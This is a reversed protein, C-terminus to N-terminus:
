SLEKGCSLVFKMAVGVIKLSDEQCKIRYGRVEICCLCASTPITSGVTQPPLKIYVKKDTFLLFLMCYDRCLSYGYQHLSRFIYATAM